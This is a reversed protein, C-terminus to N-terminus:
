SSASLLSEGPLGHTGVALVSCATAAVDVLTPLREPQRLRSNGPVALLWAGPGHNGSRGSGVGRRAVDGFRPSGVGPLRTSPRDSWRVVLDPLRDVARGALEDHVRHVAAVAPAGDPDRFTLLGDAIEDLLADRDGVIGERERGRLNLRIYGFHDGPLV